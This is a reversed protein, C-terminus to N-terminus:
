EDDQKREKKLRSTEDGEVMEIGDLAEILAKATYNLKSAATRDSDKLRKAKLLYSQINEIVKEIMQFRTEQDHQSEIEKRVAISYMTIAAPLSDGDKFEFTDSNTFIM